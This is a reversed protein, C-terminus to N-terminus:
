FKIGGKRAGEAVAKIKGHYKYGSRDFIVQNIKSKQCKEAVLLGLKEAGSLNNEAKANKLDAFVLTKGRTDDIVQVTINKLSRFVALRPIEPTGSIKARIRRKRQIRMQNRDIKKM